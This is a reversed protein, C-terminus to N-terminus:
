EKEEGRGGFLLSSCKGVEQGIIPITAFYSFSHINVGELTILVKGV